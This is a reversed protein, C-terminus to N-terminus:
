EPKQWPVAGYRQLQKRLEASLDNFVKRNKQALNNEELPDEALNYLELPAFPSNQLLKWNDRRVAEITKGQYRAGGERRSFFMTKRLQEQRSGLLVPRISKGDIQHPIKAGAFDCITPFLDMSMAQFSTESNPQIRNSGLWAVCTPVKLGGEYVSQKGDRLPGNNAGVNLQGGNDSSFIVLTPRGGHEIEGEITKLVQGIGEDMHEILAVLKARQDSIGPERAKVKEFWDKPPQIPTHPANLPFYIFFPHQQNANKDIFAVTEQTIVPLM